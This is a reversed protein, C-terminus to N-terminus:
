INEIKEYGLVVCRQLGGTPNEDISGRPKSLQYKTEKSMIRMTVEYIPYLMSYRRSHRENGDSNNDDPQIISMGFAISIFM